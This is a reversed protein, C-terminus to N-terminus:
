HAGFVSIVIIAVIAVSTGVGAGFGAAAKGLKQRQAQRQYGRVYDQNRLLKDDSVMLNHVPPRSAAIAAGTAVGGLWGVSTTVVTAGFTGWFAGPSKFYQRADLEGQRRAQEPTLAPAAAAYTATYIMEKTGNAYRIMFVDTVPLYLTDAPAAPLAYSIKEPQITLVKAPIEEGNTRLITDQAQATAALGCFLLLLYLCRM